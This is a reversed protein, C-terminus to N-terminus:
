FESPQLYSASDYVDLDPVIIVSDVGVSAPALWTLRVQKQQGSTFPRLFYRNVGVAQGDRLLVISLPVQIYSYSTKNAISFELQYFGSGDKKFSVESVPLDLRKSLFDSWDPVQHLDIRQWEMEKVVVSLGSSSDYGEPGLIFVRKDEGPFVFSSDCAVEKEAQIFCFTFYAIYKENPNGVSAALDWGSASVLARAQGIELDDPVQRPFVINGPTEVEGARFYEVARFAAYGFFLACVMVLIFVLFRYIKRRNRSLWLGARFDKLSLGSLDKYEELRQDEKKKVM